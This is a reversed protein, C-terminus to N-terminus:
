FRTTDGWGPNSLATSFINLQFKHETAVEEHGRAISNKFLYFFKLLEDETLVHGGVKLNIEARLM